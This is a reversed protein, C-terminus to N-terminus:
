TQHRQTKKSIAFSYEPTMQYTDNLVVGNMYFKLQPFVFLFIQNSSSLLYVPYIKLDNYKMFRGAAFALKHWGIDLHRNAVHFTKAEFLFVSDATWLSYDLEVQGRHTKIKELQSNSRRLYIDFESDVKGRIGSYINNRHGTVSEVLNEYIGYFRLWELQSDEQKNEDFAIKLQNFGEPERPTLQTKVNNMELNLYPRPFSKEEFIAYSGKGTRILYYGKQKLATPQDEWFDISLFFATSSTFQTADEKYISTRFAGGSSLYYGKNKIQLKFEESEIKKRLYENWIIKEGIKVSNEKDPIIPKGSM